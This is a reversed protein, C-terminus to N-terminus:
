RFTCVKSKQQQSEKFLHYILYLGDSKTMVKFLLIEIVSCCHICMKNAFLHIALLLLIRAIALTHVCQASDEFVNLLEHIICNCVM